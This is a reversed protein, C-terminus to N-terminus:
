CKVLCSKFLKKPASIIGKTFMQLLILSIHELGALKYSSFTGISWAVNNIIVIDEAVAKTDAMSIPATLTRSEEVICDEPGTDVCEPFNTNMHLKLTDRPTETWSWDTKRFNSQIIM